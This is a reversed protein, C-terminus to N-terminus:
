SYIFFMNVIKIDTGKLELSQPPNEKTIKNKIPTCNVRLDHPHPQLPVLGEHPPFDEYLKIKKLKIKNKIPAYNSYLITSIEAICWCSDAM